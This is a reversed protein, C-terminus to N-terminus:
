KSIGTVHLIDNWITEYDSDRDDFFDKRIKHLTKKRENNLYTSNIIESISRALHSEDRCILAACYKEVDFLFGVDGNKFEDLDPTYMITPLGHYAGDFSASSYDSVVGKVYPYLVNIDFNSDLALVECDRKKFKDRDQDATHPKEIWLWGNERLQACISEYELPHRYNSSDSRFTPLYLITGKYDKIKNIIREEEPLMRVCECNRPYISIFMRDRPSTSIDYNVRANRKSTSLFFANNWGGYQFLGFLFPHNRKWNLSKKAGYTNAASGVAKMGVGHWLQIKKAGWSYKTDIDPLLFNYGDSNCIIHIGAKLHYYRSEKTGCLYTEYGLSNLLEDLEKNRTVWIVKKLGLKEKNMFLYQYLFRPNDAFKAGGWAGLLVVSNDRRIFFNIIFTSANDGVCKIKKKIKKSISESSNPNIGSNDIYNKESM